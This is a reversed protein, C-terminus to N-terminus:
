FVESYKDPLVFYRDKLERQISKDVQYFKQKKSAPGLAASNEVISRQANSAIDNAVEVDLIVEDERNDFKSFVARIEEDDWLWRKAGTGDPHRERDWEISRLTKQRELRVNLDFDKLHLLLLDSKITPFATSSHFGQGLSNPKRNIIPKCMAASFSCYRRQTLIKEDHKLEAERSLKQVLNFGIPSMSEERNRRFYDVLGTYKDPDAVMIEDADCYIVVDYYQLMAQMIRTVSRARRIENMGKERPLRMRSIKENLGNLSFDDSGHDLVLLNEFGVQKSYYDVWKHIFYSENYVMTMVLVNM